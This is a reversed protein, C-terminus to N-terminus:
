LALINNCYQFCLVEQVVHVYPADQLYQYQYLRTHGNWCTDQTCARVYTEARETAHLGNCTRYGGLTRHSTLPCLPHSLRGSRPASWLDGDEHRHKPAPVSKCNRPKVTKHCPTTRANQLPQRRVPLTLMWVASSLLTSVTANGFCSSTQSHVGGGACREVELTGTFHTQKVRSCPTHLRTTV